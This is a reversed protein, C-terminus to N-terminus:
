IRLLRVSIHMLTVMLFATLLKCLLFNHEKSYMFIKNKNDRKLSIFNKCKYEAYYWPNLIIILNIM